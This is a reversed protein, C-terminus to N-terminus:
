PNRSRFGGFAGIALCICGGVILWMSEDSPRGSFVRSFASQISDASNLGFILLIIGVVVLAISIPKNM